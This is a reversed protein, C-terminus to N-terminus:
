GSRRRRTLNQVRKHDGAEDRRPSVLGADAFTEGLVATQVGSFHLFVLLPNFDKLGHLWRSIVAIVIFMLRFAADAHQPLLQPLGVIPLGEVCCELPREVAM